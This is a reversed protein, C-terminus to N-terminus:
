PRSEEVPSPLFGWHRGVEQLSQHLGEFGDRSNDICADAASRRLARPAQAAMAAQVQELPWGSRARVREIQVSEECDIVLVRDVKRRWHGTEVLLPVDFVVWGPALAALREAQQQILPHLLSELRRRADPQELVLARMRDRRLGENADVFDAGFASAIAPLAAGAPATLARALVDTDVLTAGRAQWWTAAASKGSGIGGTLGIFM